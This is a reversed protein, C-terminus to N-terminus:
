CNDHVHKEREIELSELLQYNRDIDGLLKGADPPGTLVQNNLSFVNDNCAILIESVLNPSGCTM